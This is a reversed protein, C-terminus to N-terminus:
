SWDGSSRRAAYIRRAREVAVPTPPTDITLEAPFGLAHLLETVRTVDEPTPTPRESLKRLELQRPTNKRGGVRVGIRFPKLHKRLFLIAPSTTPAEEDFAPHPVEEKSEEGGHRFWSQSRSVYALAADEVAITLSAGPALLISEIGGEFGFVRM